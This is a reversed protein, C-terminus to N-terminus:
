GGGRCGFPFRETAPGSSSRFSTGGFHAPDGPLLFPLAAALPVSELLSGTDSSVASGVSVPSFNVADM